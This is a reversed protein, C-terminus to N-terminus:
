QIRNHRVAEEKQECIDSIFTNDAAEKGRSKM